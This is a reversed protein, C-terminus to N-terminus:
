SMSDKWCPSHFLVSLEDLTLDYEAQFVHAAQRATRVAAAKNRIKVMHRWAKDRNNPLNLLKKYKSDSPLKKAKIPHRVNRAEHYPLCILDVVDRLQVNVTDSDLNLDAM